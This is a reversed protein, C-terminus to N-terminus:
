NSVIIKAILKQAELISCGVSYGVALVFFGVMEPLTIYGSYM